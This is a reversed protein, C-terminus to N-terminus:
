YRDLLAKDKDSLAPKSPTEYAKNPKNSYGSIQGTAFGKGKHYSERGIREAYEEPTENARKLRAKALDTAAKKYDIDANIKAIEEPSKVKPQAPPKPEKPIVIRGATKGYVQPNAVMENKVAARGEPTLDDWTYGEGGMVTDIANQIPDNISPYGSSKSSGSTGKAALKAEALEQRQQGEVGNSWANFMQSMSNDARAQRESADNPSITEKQVDINARDKYLDADLAKKLRQGYEELAAKENMVETNNKDQASRGWAVLLASMPNVTAKFEDKNEVRTFKPRQGLMDAQNPTEIQLATNAPQPTEAPKSMKDRLKNAFNSLMDTIGFNNPM